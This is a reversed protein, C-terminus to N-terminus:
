EVGEAGVFLDLSPYLNYEVTLANSCVGGRSELSMARAVVQSFQNDRLSSIISQQKLSHTSTSSLFQDFLTFVDSTRSAYSAIMYLKEDDCYWVFNIGYTPVGEVSTTLNQYQM